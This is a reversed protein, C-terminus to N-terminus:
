TNVPFKIHVKVLTEGNSERKAHVVRFEKNIKLDRDSYVKEDNTPDDNVIMLNEKNAFCAIMELIDTSGVPVIFSQSKKPMLPAGKRKKRLSFYLFINLPAIIIIMLFFASLM